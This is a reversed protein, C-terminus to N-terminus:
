YRSIAYVLVSSRFLQLGENVQIVVEKGQAWANRLTKLLSFRKKFQGMGGDSSLSALEQCVIQSKRFTQHQSLTVEKKESGDITTVQFVFIVTLVAAIPIYEPM